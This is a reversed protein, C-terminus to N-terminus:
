AAKDGLDAPTNAIQAAALNHAAAVTQSRGHRIIADAIPWVTVIVGTIAALYKAQDVDSIHLKFLVVGATLLAAVLALVQAQTINPTSM